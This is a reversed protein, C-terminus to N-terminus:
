KQLKVFWCGFEGTKPEQNEEKIPIIIEANINANVIEQSIAQFETFGFVVAMVMEPKEFIGPIGLSLSEENEKVEKKLVLYGYNWFGHVLFSNNCLYWNPSSLKHIEDLEIKRYIVVDSLEEKKEPSPVEAVEMQMQEDSWQSLDAQQTEEIQFKDESLVEEKLPFGKWLGFEGAAIESAYEDKWSSALYATDRFVIGIGVIDRISFRSDMIQRSNVRIRLDGQGDEIQIEGISIGILGKERVFGYITGTASTRMFNRVYVEIFSEEGRIDVKIFGTNKARTEREYEYLYTIFRKM